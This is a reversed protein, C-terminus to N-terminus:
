CAEVEALLSILHILFPTHNDLMLLKRKFSANFILLFGLAFSNIPTLLRFADSNSLFYRLVIGGLGYSLIVIICFESADKTM